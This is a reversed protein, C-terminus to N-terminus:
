QSMTGKLCQSSTGPQAESSPLLAPMGATRRIIATTNLLDHLIMERDETNGIVERLAEFMAENSTPTTRTSVRHLNRMVMRTKNNTAMTTM